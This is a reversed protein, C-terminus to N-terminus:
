DWRVDDGSGGGPGGKRECGHIRSPGLGATASGFAERWSVGRQVPGAGALGRRGDSVAPEQVIRHWLVM